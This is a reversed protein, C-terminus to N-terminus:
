SNLDTIIQLVCDGKNPSKQQKMFVKKIIENDDRNILHHHYMLRRLMVKHRIMLVGFELYYFALSCKSHGSVLNRLAATDVQELREMDRDKVNSWAESSYLMGNHLKTEPLQMGIDLRRFQPLESLIGTM